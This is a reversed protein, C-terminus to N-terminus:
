RGTIDGLKDTAQDTLGETPLDVGTAETVQDGATDAYGQASDAYGQATEGLDQAATEGVGQATEALGGTSETVKDTVGSLDIGTAESVKDGASQVLESAKDKFKDFISM